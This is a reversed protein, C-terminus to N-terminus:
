SAEPLALQGKTKSSSVCTRRAFSINPRDAFRKYSEGGNHNHHENESIQSSPLKFVTHKAVGIIRSTPNVSAGDVPAAIVKSIRLRYCLSLKNSIM